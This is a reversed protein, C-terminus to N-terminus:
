SEIKNEFIDVIFLTCFDALNRDRNEFAKSYYLKVITDITMLNRANEYNGIMKESIDTIESLRAITLGNKKRLAKLTDGMRKLKPNFIDKRNTMPVMTGKLRM